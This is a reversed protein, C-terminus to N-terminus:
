LMTGLVALAKRLKTVCHHLQNQVTKRSIGLRGAIEKTTLDENFRMQYIEQQAPTFRGIVQDHVALLERYLVAYDSGTDADAETLADLTDTLSYRRQEAKIWNLVSNKVSIFLYSRISLINLSQRKEWLRLFLGQTIDEALSLDKTRAYALEFVYAWYKEYLRDYSAHCGATRIQEWLLTDEDEPSVNSDM